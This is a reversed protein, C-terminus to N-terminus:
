PQVKNKHKDKSLIAEYINIRGGGGGVGMGSM